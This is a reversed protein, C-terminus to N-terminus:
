HKSTLSLAHLDSLKNIHKAYECIVEEPFHKVMGTTNVLTTIDRNQGSIQPVSSM